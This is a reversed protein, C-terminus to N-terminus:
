EDEAQCACFRRVEDISADATTHGGTYWYGQNPPEWVGCGMQNYYPNISDFSFQHDTAAGLLLVKCNAYTGGDLASGAWTATAVDYSRAVSTCTATCSAGAAGLFWCAPGVFEGGAESCAAEPTMRNRQLEIMLQYRRDGRRDGIPACNFEGQAPDFRLDIIPGRPKLACVGGTIIFDNGDVTGSPPSAAWAYLTLLCVVGAAMVVRLDCQM